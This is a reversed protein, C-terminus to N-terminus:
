EVTATLSLGDDFGNCLFSYDKAPDPGTVSTCQYVEKGECATPEITFRNLTFIRPTGTYSDSEPDNQETAM